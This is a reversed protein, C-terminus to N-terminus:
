GPFTVDLKGVTGLSSAPYNADFYQQAKTKLEDQTLGTWSGIALAASDAAEAMRDRVALARGYDVAAGMAIMLPVIALASCSRSM